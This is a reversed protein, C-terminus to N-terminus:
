LNLDFDKKWPYFFWLDCTCLTQDWDVEISLKRQGQVTWLSMQSMASPVTFNINSCIWVCSLLPLQWQLRGFKKATVICLATFLCMASNVFCWCCSSVCDSQDCSFSQVQKKHEMKTYEAFYILTVALSLYVDVIPPLSHCSIEFKLSRLM